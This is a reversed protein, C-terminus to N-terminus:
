VCFGFPVYLPNTAAYTVTNLAPTGTPSFLPVPRPVTSTNNANRCWFGHQTSKVTGTTDVVKTKTKNANGYYTAYTTAFAEYTEGCDVVQGNPDRGSYLETTSPVWVKQKTSKTTNTGCNNYVKYAPKIVAKLEDPLGDHFQNALAYLNSNYYRDSTTTISNKWKYQTSPVTFFLISIGIVEGGNETKDTMDHNFGVIRAKYNNTAGDFTVPIIREDGIAFHDRAEGAEAVRAIDAWAANAFSVKETWSATYTVDGTVASIEPTWGAFGYGSKEPVYSPTAGYALQQTKLVSGNDDLWTITYYRTSATFAAYVTKDATVTNLVTSSASGGASSAWGSYTYVLQATSEKTPTEMLGRVVPDACNDGRAVLRKYLETTGDESKFTVYRADPDASGEGQRVIHGVAIWRYEIGKQVGGGFTCKGISFSTSDARRIFGASSTIKDDELGGLLVQSVFGYQFFGQQKYKYDTIQEVLDSHWGAAFYVANDPYVDPGTSGSGIQSSVVVLDPVVGLGHNVILSQGVSTPTFTGTSSVWRVASAGGAYISAIAAPFDIPKMAGVGGTKDRIADAIEGFLAGLVNDAM